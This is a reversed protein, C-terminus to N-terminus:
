LHFSSPEPHLWPLSSCFSLKYTSQGIHLSALPPCIPVEQWSPAPSRLVRPLDACKIPTVPSTSSSYPVLLTLALSSAPNHLPPPLPLSPQHEAPLLLESNPLVLSSSYVPSESSPFILSLLPVLFESSPTIQPSPLFFSVEEELSELYNYEVYILKPHHAPEKDM